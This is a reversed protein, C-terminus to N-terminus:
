PMRRELPGVHLPCFYAVAVRPTHEHIVRERKGHRNLGYLRYREIREREYTARSGCELCRPEQNRGDPQGEPLERASQELKSLVQTLTM